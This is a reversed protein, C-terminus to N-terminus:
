KSKKLLACLEPGDYSLYFARTLCILSLYFEQNEGTLLTLFMM